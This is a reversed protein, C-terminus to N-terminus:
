TVPADNVISPPSDRTRPCPAHSVEIEVDLLHGREDDFRLLRKCVSVEHARINPDFGALIAHQDAGRGPREPFRSVGSSYMIPFATIAQTKSDMGRRDNLRVMAFEVNSATFIWCQHGALALVDDIIGTDVFGAGRALHEIRASW